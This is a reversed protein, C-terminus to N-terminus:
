EQRAVRVNPMTRSHRGFSVCIFVVSAVASENIPTIPAPEAAASTFVEINSEDVFSAAADSTITGSATITSSVRGCGCGPAGLADLLWNSENNDPPLWDSTGNVGWCDEGESGSAAGVGDPAVDCAVGDTM